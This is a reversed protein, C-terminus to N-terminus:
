LKPQSAREHWRLANIGNRTYMPVLAPMQETISRLKFNKMTCQAITCKDWWVNRMVCSLIKATGYSYILEAKQPHSPHHTREITSSREVSIRRM